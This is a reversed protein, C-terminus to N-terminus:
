PTVGAAEDIQEVRISLDFKVDLCYDKLEEGTARVPVEYNGEANQKVVNLGKELNGLITDAEDNQGEFAWAWTIKELGFGTAVAIDTHPNFKIIGTTTDFTYARVGNNVASTYTGFKNAITDALNKLTDEVFTGGNYETTGALTFIVPYYISGLEVKDELTFQAKDYTEAVKYTTGDLWFFTGAEFEDFNDETVLNAPVEVMIGYVGANLYINQIELKDIVVKGSVEPTGKISFTFGNDNKTGPAVVDDDGLSHVALEANTESKSIADIYGDAFLNGEVQLEVGWKAVRATDTASDQTTYKAFTGSITSTTILVAVLLASAARMMYNKRM